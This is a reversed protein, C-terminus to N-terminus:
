RGARKDVQAAELVDARTGSPPYIWQTNIARKLENAEAGTKQVAREWGSTLVAGSRGLDLCTVYNPQEYMRLDLGLLDHAANYGAHKGMPMAHQCSMLAFHDEDVRAHAADGAAFINAAGNARLYRDTALGGRGDRELDELGAPVVARLGAAIVAADTAISSGDAFQMWGQELRAVEAGCMIEVRAQALAAAIEARPGEGLEPGVADAREVLVIRAAEAAAAGGHVAIRDRMECALEIGTFGAGVIVFTRASDSTGSACMRAIQEDFRIASLRDDISFGHEAFGPVPPVHQASGTAVVLRGYALDESSGDARRVRVKGSRIDISEVNGQEFRVGLAQLAPELPARMQAPDKEYLRPRITLWPERSVLAVTQTGGNAIIERAATLAAWMGAFGGGIVLIDSM